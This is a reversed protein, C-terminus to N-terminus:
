GTHPLVLICMGTAATLIAQRKFTSFQKLQILMLLPSATAGFRGVNFKHLTDTDQNVGDHEHQFRLVCTDGNGFKIQFLGFQYRPPPAYEDQQGWEPLGAAVSVLVLCVFTAVRIVRVRNVHLESVRSQNEQLPLSPQITCVCLKRRSPTRTGRRWMM